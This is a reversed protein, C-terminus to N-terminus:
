KKKQKSDYPRDDNIPKGLLVTPCDLNYYDYYGNDRNHGDSLALFIRNTLIKLVKNERILQGTLADASGGGHAARNRNKWVDKELMGVSLKLESLFREMVIGQPAQNLYETKTVLIKKTEEPLTSESICASMRKCLEKWDGDREVLKTHKGSDLGKLVRSQLGEIASGFHVAAMHVPAAIAHWYSWFSTGLLYKDYVGYLSQVMPGLIASDIEQKYRLGLPAPQHGRLRPADRVLAHGSKAHFAVPQWNGDFSTEGLYLLFDGLCFSLCDRIKRRISEDVAERYLIFGPAYIYNAKVRSRGVVIEIGDIKLHVCSRSSLHSYIPSTMELSSTATSLTRKTEGNETLVDSEPWLFKSALNEVWEIIYCPEAAEKSVWKISHVLSIQTSTDETHDFVHHIDRSIPIVGSALVSDGQFSALEVQDTAIYVSGAPRQLCESTSNGASTTQLLLRLDKDRELTFGTVPGYLPGVASVSYVDSKIAAEFFEWDWIGM